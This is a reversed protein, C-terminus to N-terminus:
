DYTTRFHISASPQLSGFPKLLSERLEGVTSGNALAYFLRILEKAQENRLLESQLSDLNDLFENLSEDFNLCKLPDYREAFSILTPQDPVRDLGGGKLGCRAAKMVAFAAIKAEKAFYLSSSLNKNLVPSEDLARLISELDSQSNSKLAQVACKLLLKIAIHFCFQVHHTANYINGSGSDQQDDASLFKLTTSLILSIEQSNPQPYQDSFLLLITMGAHARVKFYPDSTFKESLVKLISSRQPLDMLRAISLVANWRIKAAGSHVSIQLYEDLLSIYNSIQEDDTIKGLNIINALSHIVHESRRCDLQTWNSINQNELSSFKLTEPFLKDPIPFNRFSKVAKLTCLELCYAMESILGAIKGTSSCISQLVIDLAQCLMNSPIFSADLIALRCLRRLAKPKIDDCSGNCIKIYLDISLSCLSTVLPINLSIQPFSSEPSDLISMDVLM